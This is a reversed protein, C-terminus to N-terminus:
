VNPIEFGKRQKRALFTNAHDDGVFKENKADWTLERGLRTAICAIHCFNIEQVHSYVDSVPLGGERICTLMNKKHAIMENASEIPKGKYLGRYDDETFSDQVKENEYVNGKIRQRNVHLKGETGEFFVGLGHPSHSVIELMVDNPMPCDVQFKTATQYQDQVLPHGDKMPVPHEAIVPNLKAPGQGPGDQQLAWLAIDVHHAGWDTFKGGAYDFFWRFEHHGRTNLPCGFRELIETTAVYEAEPAQGQWINWDLTSPVAAKPITPCSLGGDIHCVVRKIKGLHGKRVILVADHFVKMSRQMTGVQFVKGTKKVADRVLRGEEVTLTLPKECFVHKGALLAEIAIKIHWHDPTAIGVIDVDKRDLIRRYDSCTELKGNNIKRDKMASALGYAEDLDCIAVLDCVDAFNRCDGRGMPGTGVFAAQIRDNVSEAHLHRVLSPAAIGTAALAIGSKLFRRRSQSSM